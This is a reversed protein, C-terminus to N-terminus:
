PVKVEDMLKVRPADPSLNGTPNSLVGDEFVGFDMLWLSGDPKVYLAARDYGAAAYLVDPELPIVEGARGGGYYVANLAGDTDIFLLAQADEFSRRVIYACNDAIKRPQSWDDFPWCWLGGGRDLACIEGGDAMVSAINGMVEQPQGDGLKWLTGDLGIAYEGEVSRVGQMVPFSEGTEGKGSWAHLTHDTKVAYGAPSADRVGDMVRVPAYATTGGPLLGWAWLTGGSQLAATTRGDSYLSAVNNLVPSWGRVYGAPSQGTEVGCPADSTGGRAYLVGSEDLLFNVWYLNWVAAAQPATQQPANAGYSEIMCDWVAGGADIVLADSMSGVGISVVREFGEAPHAAPAVLREAASHAARCLIFGMHAFPNIGGPRPGDAAAAPVAAALFLCACLFAALQKKM